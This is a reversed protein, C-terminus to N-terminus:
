GAYEGQMGSFSPAVVFFFIVGDRPDLSRDIKIQEADADTGAYM